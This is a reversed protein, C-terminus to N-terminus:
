YKDGAKSENWELDHSESQAAFDPQTSVGTLRFKEMLGKLVHAHGSLEESAAASEEALASNTQVVCSIQEMGINTQKMAEDQVRSNDAIKETREAVKNISDHVKEFSDATEDAILKGRQVANLAQEILEATNQSSEATKAALNRVESAVVAFGKGAQGARAAEVAANLALINTQFAIDEINKIIKEIQTSSKTIDEMASLMNRMKESGLNIESVATKVDNNSEAIINNNDDIQTTIEELTASMEQVSSAQETAGQAQSQAGAAMQNAGSDVEEAVNIVSKLTDSITDRMNLMADKVKAFEGSCDQELTFTFDGAGVQNLVSTTEDIYVMYLKLRDVVHQIDRALTGIEDSTNVSVEVDLNGDAIKEGIDALQKVSRTLRVGVVASVGVLILIAIGFYFLMDARMERVHSLYEEESISALVTYGLEDLYSITAYKKEGNHEVQVNEANENGEVLSVIDPEYGIEKVNKMIYSSDPSYICNNNKDFVTVYGTEGIKVHSLTSVLDSFGIDLGIIGIMQSGSRIPAAVTVVLEGTVIDNYAGTLAIPTNNVIQKYWDRSEVDFNEKTFYSGDSQLFDMTKANLIWTSKIHQSDLSQLERIMRLSEREVSSNAFSDSDWALLAADYADSEAATKIIGYYEKFFSNIKESANASESVVYSGNIERVIKGVQANLRVGLIGLVLVLPVLMGLMIKQSIGFRIKASDKPTKKKQANEKRM